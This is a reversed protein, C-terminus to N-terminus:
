QEYNHPVYMLQNTIRDSHPDQHPLLRPAHRKRAKRNSYTKAPRPYYEGNKFFWPKSPPPEQQRDAESEEM